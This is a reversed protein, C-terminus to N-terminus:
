NQDPNQKSAEPQPTPQNAGKSQQRKIAIENLSQLTSKDGFKLAVKYRRQESSDLNEYLSQQTLRNDPLAGGKPLKAEVKGSRNLSNGLAETEITSNINNPEDFKIQELTNGNPGTLLYEKIALMISEKSIGTPIGNPFIFALAEDTSWRVCSNDLGFHSMKTAPCSQMLGLITSRRGKFFAPCNEKTPKGNIKKAPEIPISLFTELLEMLTLGMLDYTEYAGIMSCWAIGPPGCLIKKKYFKVSPLGDFYQPDETCSLRLQVLITITIAATGLLNYLETHSGDNTLTGDDTVLQQLDSTKYGDITFGTPGGTPGKISKGKGKFLKNLKAM